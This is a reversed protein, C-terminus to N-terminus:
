QVCAIFVENKMLIENENEHRTKILILYGSTIQSLKAVTTYM